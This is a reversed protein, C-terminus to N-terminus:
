YYVYEIANKQQRSLANHSGLVSAGEVDVEVVAKIGHAGILGLVSKLIQATDHM